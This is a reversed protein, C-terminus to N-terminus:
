CTGSARIARRSVTACRRKVRAATTATRRISITFGNALFLDVMECFQATDIEQGCMPLRMCGFGLKKEIGFM